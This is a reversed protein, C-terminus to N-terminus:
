NIPLHTAPVRWSPPYYPFAVGFRLLAGLREDRCRHAHRPRHPAVARNPRDNSARTLDGNRSM